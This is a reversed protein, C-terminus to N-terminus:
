TYRYCKWKKRNSNPIDSLVQNSEKLRLLPLTWGCWMLVDQLMMLESDANTYRQTGMWYGFRSRLLGVLWVLGLIYTWIYLPSCFKKLIIRRLFCKLYEFKKLHFFFERLSKRFTCVCSGESHNQIKRTRRKKYTISIPVTKYLRLSRPTYM